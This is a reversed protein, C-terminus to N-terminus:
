NELLARAIRAGYDLAGARSRPLRLRRSRPRPSSSAARTIPAWFVGSYAARFSWGSSFPPLSPGAILLPTVMGALVSDPVAYLPAFFTAGLLIGDVGPHVAAMVVLLLLEISLLITNAGV